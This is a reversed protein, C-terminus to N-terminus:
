RKLSYLIIPLMSEINEDEKMRFLEYQQVLLNTKAEQVQQNGEYIVCLSKFITTSISKDIIKIYEYHPLADVLISIVKHHKIYINKQAHTVSKRDSVMGVRNVEIDIDDELIDWLEDDLDIIHTDMKSM